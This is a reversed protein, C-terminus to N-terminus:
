QNVPILVWSSLPTKSISVRKDKGPHLYGNFHVNKIHYSNDNQKILEWKDDNNVSGSFDLNGGINDADLFQKKASVKFTYINGNLNTLEWVRSSDSAPVM